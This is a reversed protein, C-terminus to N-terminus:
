NINKSFLERILKRLQKSEASQISQVCQIAIDNSYGLSPLYQELIFQEAAQGYSKLLCSHLNGIEQLVPGWNPGDIQFNPLEVISSFGPFM